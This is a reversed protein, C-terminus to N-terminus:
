KSYRESEKKIFSVLARTLEENVVYLLVFYILTGIFVLLASYIFGAPLKISLNDVIIFMIIASFLYKVLNPLISRINIQNRSFYLFVFLVTTEAMLATIAAGVAMFNIILPIGM